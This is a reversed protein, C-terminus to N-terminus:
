SDHATNEASVAESAAAQCNIHACEDTISNLRGQSLDAMLPPQRQTARHEDGHRGRYADQKPRQLGGHRGCAGPGAQVGRLYQEAIWLCNDRHDLRCGRVM